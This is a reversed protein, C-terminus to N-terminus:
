SNRWQPPRKAAFAAPGEAADQTSMLDDIARPRYGVAQAV